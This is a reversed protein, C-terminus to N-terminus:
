EQVYKLQQEIGHPFVRAPTLKRGRFYHGEAGTVAAGSCGPEQAKQVEPKREEGPTM